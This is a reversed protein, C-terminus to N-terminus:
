IEQEEEREREGDGQRDAQRDIEGERDWESVAKQEGRQLSGSSRNTPFLCSFSIRHVVMEKESEM